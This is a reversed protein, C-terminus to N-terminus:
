NKKPLTGEVGEVFYDMVGLDKDTMVSGAAVRITGDRDTVPGAFPATTGAIIGAKQDEVYQKIDAPVKGGYSGFDVMQEKIGGLTSDAKWTGEMVERTKDSFYKGWHHTAAGIHANPGFKHMDSNYAIAYVGEDEAAQVIATSNTHHTVVDAGNKILALAAHREKGPDFWTNVWVVRVRADPNVSRMGQAFANIGQLVIPIPFAAVYGAVNSDTMKGALVGALYSGEYLRASTIAVNPATQYGTSHVFKVDPFERAVKLTPNMYGFSTTFILKHGERALGRIVREGDANEPVSEIYKTVVKDGFTKEVEQRGLDQQTNWGADGIPSSYIFGVKMPEQADQAGALGMGGLLPLMAAVSVLKKLKITM